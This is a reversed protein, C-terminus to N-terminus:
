NGNSLALDSGLLEAMAKQQPSPSVVDQRRVDNILWDLAAEQLDLHDGNRYVCYRGFVLKEVLCVGPGIRSYDFIISNDITAGECIHCNPGIM